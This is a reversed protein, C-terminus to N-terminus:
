RIYPSRIGEIPTMLSGAIRWGVVAGLAPKPLVWLHRTGLCTCKCSGKCTCKLPALSRWVWLLSGLIHQCSVFYRLLHAQSTCKRASRFIRLLRYLRKGAHSLSVRFRDAQLWPDRPGKGQGFPTSAAGASGPDLALNLKSFAHFM